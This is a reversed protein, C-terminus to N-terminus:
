WGDAILVLCVFAIFMVELKECRFCIHRYRKLNCFLREVENRRKYIM